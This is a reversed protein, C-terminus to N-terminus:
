QQTWFSGTATGSSGGNWIFTNNFCRTTNVGGFMVVGSVGAFNAAESFAMPPPVQGPTGGTQLAWTQTSVTYVWTDYLYGVAPSGVGGYLVFTSNTSNYAIASGYRMSPSNTGPVFTTGGTTATINTWAGSAFIWTDSLPGNANKGGFLLVNGSTDTAQAAYERASPYAGNAFASSVMTWTGPIGASWDWQDQSYGINKYAVAGGYLMPGTPAVPNYSMNAAKITTPIAYTGSGSISNTLPQQIWTGSPTASSLGSAPLYSYTDSLPVSQNLTGVGGVVTIYKGDFSASHDFRAPCGTGVPNTGGGIYTWQVPSVSGSPSQSLCWYDGLIGNYSVIGNYQAATTKGGFMVVQNAIGTSVGSVTASLTSPYESLSHAWRPSPAPNLTM